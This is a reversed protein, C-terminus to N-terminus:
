PLREELLRLIILAAKTRSEFTRGATHPTVIAGLEKLREPNDQGKEMGVLVDVAVRLDPRKRMVEALADEDVVEGRSVNILAAGPKMSELLEKTVLGRSGENLTCCLIVADCIKFMAQLEMSMTLMPDNKVTWADFAECWKEIRRGIRGYGVIGITKGMLERPPELRLADLLLKFAFEASASINELSKRDDLLSIVEVGRDICAQIDIHNTGTSPTALIKLKPYAALRDSDFSYSASPDCVIIKADEAGCEMDFCHQFMDKVNPDFDFPALFLLKYARM